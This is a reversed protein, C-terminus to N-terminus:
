VRPCSARASAPTTASPRLWRRSTPVWPRACTRSRTSSPSRPPSSPTASVKVLEATALDTRIWPIHDLDLIPQYVEQLPQDARASTGGVVLRDPHLTDNVAFGERLFEPNWALEAQDGVPALERVRQALRAATGVPVTSKGVVLAPRHLHPALWDVV